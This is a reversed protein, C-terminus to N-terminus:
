QTNTCDPASQSRSNGASERFCNQVFTLITGPEPLCERLREETCHDITEGDALSPQHCFDNYLTDRELNQAKYYINGFRYPLIYHPHKCTAILGIYNDFAGAIWLPASDNTILVKAQSILAILMKTDLKDILDICRSTDIEVVGQEKSVRKGIVGVTFGADVLTNVYSQWVDAPFTKTEWGRGPHVLVLKQFDIIGAVDLLRKIEDLGYELQIQRCELPLMMRLGQLSAFDVGHCLPHSMFEWSVHEPSRLTRVEYYGKMEFKDTKFYSPLGLHSYIEPWNSLIIINDGRYMREKMYRITPEAAIQDGLGGDVIVAINKKFKYDPKSKEWVELDDQMLKLQEDQPLILNIGAYHMFYSDHREEGTIRDMCYMRNFRYPLQFMEMKEHAIMVNLYSQEFFHNSEVPPRRFIPKHKESLVMVGTNYYKGNWNKEDFKLERLYALFSSRDTFRGEEFMGLKEPPVMKFLDPADERILIDTDVYLVRDYEDLLHAIELKQYHPMTHKKHDRWVIFDAGIKDAYRKLTPHSIKAMKEYFEGIAITVLALKNGVGM